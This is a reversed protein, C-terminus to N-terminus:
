LHLQDIMWGLVARTAGSVVGRGAAAVLTVREARTLPVRGTIPEDRHLTFLRRFM